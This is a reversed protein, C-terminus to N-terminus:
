HRNAVRRVRLQVLRKARKPELVHCAFFPRGRDAHLEVCRPTNHNELFHEAFYPGARARKPEWTRQASVDNRTPGRVEDTVHSFFGVVDDRPASRSAPSSAIRPLSPLPPGRPRVSIHARGTPSRPAQGRAVAPADCKSGCRHFRTSRVRRAFRSSASPSNHSARSAGGPAVWM